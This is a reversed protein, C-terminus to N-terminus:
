VLEAVWNQYQFNEFRPIYRTVPLLDAPLVKSFRYRSNVSEFFVFVDRLFTRSDINCGGYEFQVRRVRGQELLERAGRLVSLESGEVDVKLFDVVDIGNEATYGDLTVLQITERAAPVLGPVSSRDFMSNMGSGSGFVHMESVGATEGVALRNLKARSGIRARLQEYTAESPEFCHLDLEPNILLAENAWDGVNAGVDFVVRSGPLVRRLLRLEGNGGMDPNNNGEHEDVYMRCLGYLLRSRPMRALVRRAGRALFRRSSSLEWM